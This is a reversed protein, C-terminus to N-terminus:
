DRIKLTILILNNNYVKYKKSINFNNKLNLILVRNSIIKMKNRLM